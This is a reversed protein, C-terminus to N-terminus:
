RTTWSASPRVVGHSLPFLRMSSSPRSGGPAVNRVAIAPSQTQMRLVLADNGFLSQDVDPRFHRGRVQRPRTQRGAGSGVM